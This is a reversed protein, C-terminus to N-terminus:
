DQEYHEYVIGKRGDVIIKMGTKIVRTAKKTAVVCPLGLERAVVAPHSTMGGIDTVIAKANQIIEVFMSADTIRAVLIEGLKLRQRNNPMIVRARGEVRGSSAPIGKVLVRM